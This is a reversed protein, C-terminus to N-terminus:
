DTEFYELADKYLEELLLKEEERAKIEEPTSLAIEKSKRTSTKIVLKMDIKKVKKSYGCKICVLKIGKETKKPIMLNNCKPCFQM